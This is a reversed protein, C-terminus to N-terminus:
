KQSNKRLFDKIDDVIKQAQQQRYLYDAQADQVQKDKNEEIQQIIYDLTPNDKQDDEDDNTSNAAPIPSPSTGNNGIPTQTNMATEDDEDEVKKDDVINDAVKDAAMDVLIDEVMEDIKKLSLKSKIRM